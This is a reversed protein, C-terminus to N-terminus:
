CISLTGSKIKDLGKNRIILEVMALEHNVGDVTLNDVALGVHFPKLGQRLENCVCWDSEKVISIHLEYLGVDHGLLTLGEDPGGDLPSELM